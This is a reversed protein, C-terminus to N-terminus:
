TGLVSKKHKQLSNQPLPKNLMDAVQDEATTAHLKIEGQRVHERLHFYCINAIELAISNDEFAHCFVYINSNFIDFNLKDRLERAFTRLQIVDQLIFSLSIYAAKTASLAVQSQM